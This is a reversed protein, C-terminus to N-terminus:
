KGWKAEKLIMRRERRSVHQNHHTLSVRAMGGPHRDYHFRIVGNCDVTIFEDKIGQRIESDTMGSGRTKRM